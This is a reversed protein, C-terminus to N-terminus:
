NPFFWCRPRAGEGELPCPGKSPDDQDFARERAEFCKAGAVFTDLRCQPSPHQYYSFSVELQDKYNLSPLRHGEKLSAFVRGVVLGAMAIRSCLPDDAPCRDNAMKIQDKADSMQPIEFRENQKGEEGWVLPLCRSAAYFDAQGEASSWSLKTSRGRPSRPAGGLHHGLEHCLIAMLGDRNMLPHRAMAGAVNIVLDNDDNKTAHANVREEDWSLVVFLQHATESQVLPRMKHLFDEIVSQSIEQKLSAFCNQGLLLSILLSSTKVIHSAM